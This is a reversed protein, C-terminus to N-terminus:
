VLQESLSKPPENAEKVSDFLKEDEDFMARVNEKLTYKTGNKVKETDTFQTILNWNSSLFTGKPITVSGQVYISYIFEKVNFEMNRYIKKLQDYRQAKAVAAFAKGSKARQKNEDNRKRIQWGIAIGSLLMVFPVVFYGIDWVTQGVMEPTVGLWWLISVIAGAFGVSEKFTRWAKM